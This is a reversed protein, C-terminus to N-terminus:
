STQPLKDHFKKTYNPNKFSLNQQNDNLTIFIIKKNKVFPSYIIETYVKLKLSPSNCVTDIALNLYTCFTTITFSEKIQKLIM